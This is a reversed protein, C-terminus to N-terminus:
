RDPKMSENAPLRKSGINGSGGATNRHGAGETETAGFDVAPLDRETALALTFYDEKQFHYKTAIWKSPVSDILTNYRNVASNLRNRARQIDREIENLQEQLSLFNRSAKLDPYAEALAMLGSLSKSIRSEAEMRHAVDASPDTEANARALLRSEHDEYGQVAQVLNPILNFRRKLAVDIRSWAEEIRNRYKVFRNYTHIYWATSVVVVFGALMFLPILSDM